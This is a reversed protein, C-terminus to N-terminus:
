FIWGKISGFGDFTPFDIKGMCTNRPPLENNDARPYKIIQAEHFSAAMELNQLDNVSKSTKRTNVGYKKKQNLLQNSEAGSGLISASGREPSESGLSSPIQIGLAKKVIEFQEMFIRNTDEYTSRFVKLENQTAQHEKQLNQLEQQNQACLQRIEAEFKKNDGM